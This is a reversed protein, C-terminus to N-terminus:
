LMTHRHTNSENRANCIEDRLHAIEHSHTNNENRVNSFEDRLHAFEHRTCM